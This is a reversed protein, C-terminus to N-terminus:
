NRPFWLCVWCACLLCAFFTSGTQGLSNAMIDMDQKVPLVRCDTDLLHEAGLLSCSQTWVDSLCWSPVLHLSLRFSHLNPLIILFYWPVGVLIFARESLVSQLLTSAIYHGVVALQCSFKRRSLSGLQVGPDQQRLHVCLLQPICESVRHCRTAFLIDQLVKVKSLLKGM